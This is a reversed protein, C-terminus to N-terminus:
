IDLRYGMGRVTKLRVPNRPDDEIARRLWSIHVDLTRTDGTYETQWVAAFLVGRALVDGRFRILMMLLQTLRPTLRTQKGGCTVIHHDPDLTIPGARLLREGQGPLLARIRNVLKRATFPLSLIVAGGIEETDEAGAPYILVIPCGPLQKELATVIRKGNTRLSAANVLALDPRSIAARELAAKGSPVLEVEYGKKRLAPVFAPQDTRKGEIWLIKEKM